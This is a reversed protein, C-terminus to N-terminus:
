SLTGYTTRGSMRVPRQKVKVSRENKQCLARTHTGKVGQTLNCIIIIIIIIIIKRNRNTWDRVAKKTFGVAIGCATEPGTFPHGSETRALKDAAENGHGPVWILV